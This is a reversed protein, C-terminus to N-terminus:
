YHLSLTMGKKDLNFHRRLAEQGPLNPQALIECLMKAASNNFESNQAKRQFLLKMGDIFVRLLWNKGFIGDRQECGLWVTVNRCNETFFLNVSCPEIRM